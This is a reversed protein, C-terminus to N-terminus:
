GNCPLITVQTEGIIFEDLCISCEKNPGMKEPNYPEEILTKFLEKTM